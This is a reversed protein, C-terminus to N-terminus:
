RVEYLKSILTHPSQSTERLQYNMRLLMYKEGSDARSTGAVLRRETCERSNRVFACDASVGAM